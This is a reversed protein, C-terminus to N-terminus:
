NSSPRTRRRCFATRSRPSHASPCKPNPGRFPLHEYKSMNIKSYGGIKLPTTVNDEIESSCGQSVSIVADVERRHKSFDFEFYKNFPLIKKRADM